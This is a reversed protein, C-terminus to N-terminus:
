KEQLLSINELLVKIKETETTQYEINSMCSLSRLSSKEPLTEMTTLKSYDMFKWISDSMEEMQIVLDDMHRPTHLVLSLRKTDVTIEKFDSAPFKQSFTLGTFCLCWRSQHLFYLGKNTILAKKKKTVKDKRSFVFGAFYVKEKRKNIRWALSTNKNSVHLEDIIENDNEM